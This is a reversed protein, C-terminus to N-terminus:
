VSITVLKKNNRFGSIKKAKNSIFFLQGNRDDVDKERQVFFLLSGQIRLFKTPFDMGPLWSGARSPWSRTDV